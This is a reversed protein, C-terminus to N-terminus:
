LDFDIMFRFSRKPSRTATVKVYKSGRFASGLSRTTQELVKDAMYDQVETLVNEFTDSQGCNPCTFVDDSKPDAPGQLPVQCPACKVTKIGSGEPM